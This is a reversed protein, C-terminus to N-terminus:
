KREEQKDVYVSTLHMEGNKIDDIWGTLVKATRENAGTIDMIVEYRMGYGIDGKETASFNKLNLRIQEILKLANNINYGLALDFAVAKNPQRKPNLAYQTFKEIPIVAEDAKPLVSVMGDGLEIIGSKDGGDVFVRKWKAISEGEFFLIKKSLPTQ